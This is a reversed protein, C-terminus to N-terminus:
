SIAEAQTRPERQVEVLKCNLLKMLEPTISLRWEAVRALASALAVPTVSRRLAWDDCFCEALTHLRSVALRNLPQIWLVREILSALALWIPDRRALHALEHALMSRQQELDLETLATEPM